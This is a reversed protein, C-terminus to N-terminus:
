VSSLRNEIIKGMVLVEATYDSPIPVLLKPHTRPKKGLQRYTFRGPEGPSKGIDNVPDMVM